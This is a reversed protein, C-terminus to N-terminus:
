TRRPDATNSAVIRRDVDSTESFERLYPLLQHRIRNRTYAKSSNSRDTRFELRNAEIYQM